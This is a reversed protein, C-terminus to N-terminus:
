QIGRPMPTASPRPREPFSKLLLPRQVNSTAFVNHMAHAVTIRNTRQVVDRPDMAMMREAPGGSSILLLRTPSLPMTILFEGNLAGERFVAKDGILLNVAAKSVNIVAWRAAVLLDLAKSTSLVNGVSLLTLDRLYGADDAYGDPWSALGAAARQKGSLELVAPAAEAMNDLEWPTRMMLSM